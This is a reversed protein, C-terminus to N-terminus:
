STSTYNSYGHEFRLYFRSTPQPKAFTLLAHEKRDAVRLEFAVTEKRRRRRRRTM